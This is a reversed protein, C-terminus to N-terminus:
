RSLRCTVSGSTWDGNKVGIRYEVGQEYEQLFEKINASYTKVDTWESDAKQRAQLTVTAVWPSGMVWINVFGYQSRQDEYPKPIITNTWEGNAGPASSVTVSKSEIGM